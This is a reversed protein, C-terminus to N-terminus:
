VGAKKEAARRKTQAEAIAARGEPSMKRKKKKKKVPKEKVPSKVLASEGRFDAWRKRQAEAMRKRVAPSMKRKGKVRTVSSDPISDSSLIARLESIQVDIETKQREYGFIAATIIENTLKLAPM